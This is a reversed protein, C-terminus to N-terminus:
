FKVGIDVCRSFHKGLKNDNLSKLKAGDISFQQFVPVVSSLGVSELWQIVHDVNWDGITVRHKLLDRLSDNSTLTNISGLASEKWRRDHFNPTNAASSFWGQDSRVSGMPSPPSGFSDMTVNHLSDSQNSNLSSLVASQDTEGDATFSTEKQDPLTEPATPVEEQQSPKEKNQAEVLPEEIIKETLSGNTNFLPIDKMISEFLSPDSPQSLKKYLEPTTMHPLSVTSEGSKDAVKLSQQQNSSTAADPEDKSPKKATSQLSSATVALLPPVSNGKSLELDSASFSDINQRAALPRRLDGVSASTVPENVVKLQNINRDRLMTSSNTVDQKIDVSSHRIEEKSSKRGKKKLREDSMSHSRDHGLRKQWPFKLKSSKKSSKQTKCDSPEDDHQQTVLHQCVFMPVNSSKNSEHELDYQLHISHRSSGTSTPTQSLSEVERPNYNSFPRITKPSFQKFVEPQLGTEHNQVPKVKDHVIEAAAFEAPALIHTDGIEPPTQSFNKPPEISPPEIFPQESLSLPEFPIPSTPLPPVGYTLIEDELVDTTAPVNPPPITPLDPPTADDSIIDAQDFIGDSKFTNPPLSSPLPPPTLAGDDEDDSHNVSAPIDPPLGSLVTTNNTINSSWPKSFASESHSDAIKVGVSNDTYSVPPSQTPAISTNSIRNSNIKTVTFPEVRKVDSSLIPPNSAFNLFNTTPHSVPSSQSPTLLEESSIHPPSINTAYDTHPKSLTVDSLNLLTASYSSQLPSTVRSNLAAVESQVSMAPSPMLGERKQKLRAIRERFKSVNSSSKNDTSSKADSAATSTNTSPVKILSANSLNLSYDSKDDFSRNHHDLSPSSRLSNSHLSSSWVSHSSTMLPSSPKEQQRISSFGSSSSTVYPSSSSGFSDAALPVQEKERHTLEYSSMHSEYPINKDNDLQHQDHQKPPYSLPPPPPPVGNYPPSEPPDCLLSAEKKNTSAEDVYSPINTSALSNFLPPPETFNDHPSPTHSLPNSIPPSESSPPPKDNPLIETSPSKNSPPPLGNLAALPPENIPLPPPLESSAEDLDPSASSDALFVNDNTPSCSIVDSPLPLEPASGVSPPPASTPLPPPQDFDPPANALLSQSSEDTSTIMTLSLSSKSPTRIGQRKPRELTRHVLQKKNQSSPEKRTSNNAAGDENIVNRKLKVSPKPQVPPPVPKKPAGGSYMTNSSSLQAQLMLFKQSASRKRGTYKSEVSPPLSAPLSPPTDEMDDAM